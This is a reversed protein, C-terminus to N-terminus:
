SIGGTLPQLPEQASRLEALLRSPNTHRVADALGAPLSPDCLISEPDGRLFPYDSGLVVRDVGVLRVLVALLDADFLLLDYWVRAAYERAPLPMVQQIEPSMTRVFDLRAISAPLSGGGHSALLQLNPHRALVGNAILGAVAEGIRAPFIASSGAMPYEFSDVAGVSHLFVLLGLREAEIFFERYRTDHLPADPGTCPVEVGILGLRAIETLMVAARPPDQMPVLGLGCFFGGSDAIHETLWENFARCYEAADRSSAWTAFLEPMASLLQGGIGRAEQQERRHDLDYAVRQVSRFVRGSVIVDAVDSRDSRPTLRAWRGDSVSLRNLFPIPPPVVHTHLDIAALATM